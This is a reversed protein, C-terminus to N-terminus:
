VCKWILSGRGGGEMHNQGFLLHIHDPFEVIVRQLGVWPVTLFLWLVNVTVPCRYSLLLLTVLQRKRKLIIAFSPHCLTICLLYFVFM